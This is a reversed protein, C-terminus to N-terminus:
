GAVAGSTDIRPAPLLASGLTRSASSTPPAFSTWAELVDGRAADVLVGPSPLGAKAFAHCLSTPSRYGTLRAVAETTAGPASLLRLAHSLRVHHLAGKWNSWPLRYRRSLAGLVRNVQRPNTEVASVVDEMAPHSALSSLAAYCAAQVAVSRRDDADDAQLDRPTLHRLPFGIARLVELIRLVVEIGRGEHLVQAHAKRLARADGDSLRDIQFVGHHSADLAHTNWELALVDNRAGAYAETGGRAADSVVFTDAALWGRRGVEEFRARGRLVFTATNRGPRAVRGLFSTARDVLAFDSAVNRGHTVVVRLWPTRLDVQEYSADLEPAVLRRVDRLM